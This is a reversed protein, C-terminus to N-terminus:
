CQEGAHSLLYEEGEKRVFTGLLKNLHYSFNGSDDISIAEYLEAFSMTEGPPDGLAELIEIRTESALAEFVAAPSQIEVNVPDEGNKSCESGM